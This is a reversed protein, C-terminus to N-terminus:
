CEASLLLPCSGMCGIGKGALACAASLCMVSAFHSCVKPENGEVVSAISTNIARNNELLYNVGCNFANVRLSLDLGGGFWVSVGYGDDANAVCLDGRPVNILGVVSSCVLCM